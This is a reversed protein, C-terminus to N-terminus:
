LPKAAVPKVVTPKEPKEEKVKRPELGWFNKPKEEKVKSAKPATHARKVSTTPVKTKGLNMTMREMPAELSTTKPTHATKASVHDTAKTFM